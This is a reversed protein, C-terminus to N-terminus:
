YLDEAGGCVGRFCRRWLGSKWFCATHADTRLHRFLQFRQFSAHLERSKGRACHFFAGPHIHIKGTWFRRTASSAHVPPTDPSPTTLLFSPDSYPIQNLSRKSLTDHKREPMFM